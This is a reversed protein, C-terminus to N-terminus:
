QRDTVTAAVAKPTDRGVNDLRRFPVAPIEPSMATRNSFANPTSISVSIRM